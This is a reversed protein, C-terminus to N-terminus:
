CVYIAIMVAWSILTRTPPDPFRRKSIGYLCVDSVYDLRHEAKAAFTDGLADDILFLHPLNEYKTFLFALGKAKKM